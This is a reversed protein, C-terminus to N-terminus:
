GCEIKFYYSGHAQLSFTPQQDFEKGNLYDTNDTYFWVGTYAEVYIHKFRKSIGLEPKFAWRNAGINIVKDNYYRGIPVNTVLSVGLITKQEFSGFNKRDLAPSGLLNIGFRIRADAFGTRSGVIKDGNTLTESGGMFTFRTTIQIRALKDAVSFTRLYGAAITQSHISINEIPLSPDTIVNGDTLVYGFAIVNLDKPVNAYVRPELDQGHSYISLCITLLLFCSRKNIIFGM